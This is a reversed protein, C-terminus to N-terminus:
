RNEYTEPELVLANKQLNCIAHTPRVNKLTDSGGKSLPILHDVHFGKEWNEKGVKRPAIFDIPSNCLTCNTGYLNLVDEENYHEQGNKLKWAKRKRAYSRFKDLNSLRYNERKDKHEARYKDAYEKVYEPNNLRFLRNKELVKDRNKLHTAKNEAKTKEPNKARVQKRHEKCAFKCEQCAEEKHYQHKKYGAMTGCNNFKM